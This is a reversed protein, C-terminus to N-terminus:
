HEALRAHGENGLMGKGGLVFRLPCLSLSAVSAWKLMRRKQGCISLYVVLRATRTPLSFDARPPVGCIRCSADIGEGVRAFVAGKELSRPRFVSVPLLFM